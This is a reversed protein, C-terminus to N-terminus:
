RGSGRRRRRLRSADRQEEGGGKKGREGKSTWRMRWTERKGGRRETERASVASAAWTSPRRGSGPWAPPRTPRRRCRRATTGRPPPPPASGPGPRRSTLTPSASSSGFASRYPPRTEQAAARRLWAQVQAPVFPYGLKAGAHRRSAYTVAGGGRKGGGATNASGVRLTCRPNGVGTWGDLIVASLPPPRSPFPSFSVRRAECTASPPMGNPNAPPGRARGHGRCGVWGKTTLSGRRPREGGRWRAARAGERRSPLWRARWGEENGGKRSGGRGAWCGCWRREAM